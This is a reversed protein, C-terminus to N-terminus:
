PLPDFLAREFPELTAPDIKEGQNLRRQTAPSFLSLPVGHGPHRAAIAASQERSIKVPPHSGAPLPMRFRLYRAM